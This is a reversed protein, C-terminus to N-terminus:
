TADREYQVDLADRLARDVQSRQHIDLRGIRTADLWQKPITSVHDCNIVGAAPLGEQPGVEVESDISRVTSTIPACTVAGLVEIAADHTLVCVPRRGASEGLEAWM